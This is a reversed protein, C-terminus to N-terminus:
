RTHIYIKMSVSLLTMFERWLIFFLNHEFQTDSVVRCASFYLTYGIRQLNIEKRRTVGPAGGNDESKDKTFDPPYTSDDGQIGQTPPEWKSPCELAGGNTQVPYQFAGNLRMRM